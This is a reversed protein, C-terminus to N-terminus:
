EVVEFVEVVEQERLVEGLLRGLLRIDEKLPADKDAGRAPKSPTISTAAPNAGASRSTSPASRASRKTPNTTAM